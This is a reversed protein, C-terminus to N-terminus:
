AAAKFAARRVPGTVPKIGMYVQHGGLTRLILSPPRHRLFQHLGGPTLPTNDNALFVRFAATTLPTSETIYDPRQSCHTRIVQWLIDVRNVEGTDLSVSDFEEPASEAYKARCEQCLQDRLHARLNWGKQKWWDFDIHFRTDMNPKQYTTM